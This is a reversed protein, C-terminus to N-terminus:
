KASAIAYALNKRFKKAFGDNRSFVVGETFKGFPFIPQYQADKTYLAVLRIREGGAKSGRGYREWIGEPKNSHGRPKGSFFKKKDGLMESIMGKPFNGYRNLKSYRTSVTIARKNPFRTGGQVMFKMYTKRADDIFVEATLNAKTSKKYQFGQKTWRTAGGAFEKDAKEPMTEKAIQFALENLSKSAAFPIHKRQMFELQKTLEKFEDKIVINMM